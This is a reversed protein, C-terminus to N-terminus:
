SPPKVVPVYPKEFRSLVDYFNRINEVMIVAEGGRARGAKLRVYYEPRALLPLVKKMDYWSAPDRNLGKAIAKAGNFHGPGLNYAALALWTRDPEQAEAPMMEILDALYRAGARISQRPDLRNGVRMRDATDETLMMMGRVGTRSTALPDWNSEQYALAALLRWDIGTLLQAQHFEARYHPMRTQMLELFQAMNNPGVRKIHGFYRDELRVLTGDGRIRAIFAEARDLLAADEPRFAWAYSVKGPLEMALDLDPYFNAAVDFHARDVAALDSQREAVRKLLALEDAVAVEAVTFSTAPQMKRLAPLEPADPLIEVQHGALDEPTDIPISDVHQVIVQVSERLPASYRLDAAGPAMPAAAVFHVKGSRLLKLLELHSEALVFRVRVGIEDAFATALDYEIGSAGEEASEKQFFVPDDHIGVVLEGSAEPPDLRGCAALFFQLAILFVALRRM